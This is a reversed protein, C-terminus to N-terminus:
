SVPYNAEAPPGTKKAKIRKRQKLREPGPKFRKYITTKVEIEYGRFAQGWSRIPQRFDKIEAFNLCVM